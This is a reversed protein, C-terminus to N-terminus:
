QLEVLSRLIPYSHFNLSAYAKPEREVCPHIEGWHVYVNPNAVKFAAIDVPM